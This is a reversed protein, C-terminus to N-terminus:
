RATLFVLVITDYMAHCGVVLGFGRLLYVAGFFAGAIGFFVYKMAAQPDGDPVAAHHYVSFLVASIIVAIINGSMSKAKLLDVALLHVLTVLVLRFLLEEYLGAGVSLTLRAQWPLGAIQQTVTKAAPALVLGAAAPRMILSGIILLPLCWVLSEAFMGAVVGPRLKWKDNTFLHWTIFVVILVVGPLYFTVPGFLEFFRALLSWAGITAAVKKEHNQLYVISGLEYLVILPLLFALIHLPKMSTVSYADVAKTMASVPSADARQVPKVKRSAM